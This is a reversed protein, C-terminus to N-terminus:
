VMINYLMRLLKLKRPQKLEEEANSADYMSLGLKRKGEAIYPANGQLWIKRGCRGGVGKIMKYTVRDKLKYKEVRKDIGDFPVKSEGEGIGM